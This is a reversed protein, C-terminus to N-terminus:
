SQASPQRDEVLLNVILNILEEMEAPKTLYAQAGATLAAQRDTEYAAGSYFIIPTLSDFGRLQRCLDIGTGDPLWNDLLYLNFQEAQAVQLGERCTGVSTVQYGALNLVTGIMIRTDEDDDVFLIQNRGTTM